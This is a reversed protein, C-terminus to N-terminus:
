SGHVLFDYEVRAQWYTELADIYQQAAQITEQKAAVLRFAGILMGNYEKQTEDLIQRRLPLVVKLLFEVRERAGILRDRVVRARSRIAVADAEYLAASRRLDSLAAAHEGQGMDFLPLPFALAPGIETKHDRSAESAVGVGSGELLAMPRAIGLKESAEEIELRRQDLQLSEAVATKEIGDTSAAAAPLDPLRAALRWQTQAGWLGMTTNLDERQERVQNEVTALDLKAQEFAACETDEDLLTINGAARMRQALDYTAEAAALTQKFLGEKQLTSQLRYYQHSAQQAMQLVDRAAGVQAQKFATEALRKHAPMLLLDLFDQTLAFDFTFGGGSSFRTEAQFLPNHLLGARVLDAQAMGLNEFDAQLGQNRLLAIQVVNEVQLDHQLLDDVLKDAAGDEKTGTRWQVEAPERGALQERVGAFAEQPTPSGCGPMMLVGAVLVLM